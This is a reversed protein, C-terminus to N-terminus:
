PIIGRDGSVVIEKSSSSGGNGINFGSSNSLSVGFIGCIIRICGLVALLIFLVSLGGRVYDKYNDYWSFDVTYTRLKNQNPYTLINDIDYWQFSLKLPEPKMGQVSGTIRKLQEIFVLRKLIVKGPDPKDDWYDDRPVFLGALTDCLSNWFDQCWSGIALVANRIADIADWFVGVLWDWLGQLWGLIGDNADPVAAPNDVIGDATLSKDPAMDDTVPYIYAPAQVLDGNENYIPPAYVITTTDDPNKNLENITDLCYYELDFAENYTLTPYTVPINYDLLTGGLDDSYLLLRSVSNGSTEYAVTDDDLPYYLKDTQKYSMASTVNFNMDLNWQGGGWFFFPYFRRGFSDTVMDATSNALRMHGYFFTYCLAGNSKFRTLCLASSAEGGGLSVASDWVKSNYAKVRAILDNRVSYDPQKLTKCRERYDELTKILDSNKYGINTVWYTNNDTLTIQKVFGMEVMQSLTFKGDLLNWIWEVYKRNDQWHELRLNNHYIIAEFINTWDYYYNDRDPLANLAIKCYYEADEYKYRSAKTYASSANRRSGFDFDDAKASYEFSNNAGLAAGEGAAAAGMMYSYLTLYLDDIGAVASANSAAGVALSFLIILFIMLFCLAPKVYRKIHTIPIYGRETYFPILRAVYAARSM